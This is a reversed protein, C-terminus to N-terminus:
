SFFLLSFVFSCFYPLQKAAKNLIPSNNSNHGYHHIKKIKKPKSPPSLITKSSGPSTNPTTLRKASCKNAALLTLHYSTDKKITCYLCIKYFLYLSSISLTLFFLFPYFSSPFFLLSFVFSYFYPLM